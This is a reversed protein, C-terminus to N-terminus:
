FKLTNIEKHNLAIKELLLYNLKVREAFSDILMFEQDTHINGGRVGLTDINALGADNLNNGDCCGGTAKFQIPVSLQNGCEILWDCLKEFVPNTVKPVRNFKGFMEVQFGERDMAKNVVSQIKEEVWRKEDQNTVRVNFHGVALNPVTNLADGGSIRGLNLTVNKKETTSDHNIDDLQSFMRSLLAIANRGKHFERGAHASKGVVRLSFNGSGKREGALTGDAFSPEFVMGVTAEKASKHLQPASAISGTEEDPNILVEWGISDSLPHNEFAKLAHLMVLLGGKMDAVGPGHLTNADLFNASQFPHDAPFVTDMHGCLLVRVAANPRKKFQLLDGYQVIELEGSDSLSETPDLVIRQSFDSISSFEADIIESMIKLGALNSTGSNINSWQTLQQIIAPSEADIAAFIESQNMM